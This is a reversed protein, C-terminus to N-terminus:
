EGKRKSKLLMMLYRAMAENVPMETHIQTNGMKEQLLISFGNLNNIEIENSPFFWKKAWKRVGQPTHERLWSAWNNSKYVQDFGGAEMDIHLPKLLSSNLVDIYLQKDYRHANPVAKWFRIFESDWLPLYWDLGFFEYCRVGNVVYKAIRETLVWEEVQAYFTEFSDSRNQAGGFAMQVDDLSELRTLRSQIYQKATEKSKEWKSRYFANPLFSGAQVDGSFGPCIVSKPDVKEKLAGIAFYEQEQPVSVGNSAFEMYEDWGHGISNYFLSLNYEVFHWQVDLAECVKKAVQAEHGEPQGYTFATIDKYDAKKLMSLVFRSDYGGSLPILAPRGDLYQIFRETMGEIIGEFEKAWNEEEGPKEDLRHHSFYTHWYPRGENIWLLQGAPIQQWGEFYTNSGQVMELSKLGELLPRNVAQSTEFDLRDAIVGDEAHYFLPISRVLDVCAWCLTGKKFVLSYSGSLQNLFDSLSEQTSLLTVESEMDAVSLLRGGRFASGLMFLNGSQQWSKHYHTTNHFQLQVM